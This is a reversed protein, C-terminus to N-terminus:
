CGYTGIYSLLEPDDNTANDDEECAERFTYTGGCGEEIFRYVKDSAMSHATTATATFATIWEVSPISSTIYRAWSNAIRRM